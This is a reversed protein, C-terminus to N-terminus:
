KRILRFPNPVSRLVPQALCYIGWLTLGTAVVLSSIYGAFALRHPQTFPNDYKYEVDRWSLRECETLLRGRTNPDFLEDREKEYRTVADTCTSTIHNGTEKEIGNRWDVVEPLFRFGLSTISLSAGLLLLDTKRNRIFGLVTQIPNSEPNRM